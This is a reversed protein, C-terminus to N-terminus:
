DRWHVAAGCCKRCSQLMARIVAAQLVNFLCACALAGNHEEAREEKEGRMKTRKKMLRGVSDDNMVLGLDVHEGGEICAM